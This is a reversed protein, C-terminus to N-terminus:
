NPAKQDFSKIIYEGILTNSKKKEFFLSTKLKRYVMENYMTKLKRYVM